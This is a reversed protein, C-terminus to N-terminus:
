DQKLNDFIDRAYVVHVEEVNVIAHATHTPDYLHCATENTAAPIVTFTYPTYESNLTHYLVDSPVKSFAQSDSEWFLQVLTPGIREAYTIELTALDGATLEVDASPFYASNPISTSTSAESDLDFTNEILLEGNLRLTFASSRHSYLYLRYTETYLPELQGTWIM